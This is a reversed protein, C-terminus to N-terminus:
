NLAKPIYPGVVIVKKKEVEFKQDFLFVEDQQSVNFIRQPSLPKLEKRDTTDLMVSFQSGPPVELAFSAAGAQDTRTVSKNLYLVPLNGGNEARVAVVVRRMSPFCQATFEAVKKDALRTLRISVPKPPSQFGEPCTVNVETIEGEVSGGPVGPVAAPFTLLARGNADTTGIPRSARSITANPVANGRDGEVRVFVQFPQPPPPDACSAVGLMAVPLAIIQAVSRM